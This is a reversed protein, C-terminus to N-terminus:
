LNNILEEVTIRLPKLIGNRLTGKKIEKHNPIIAIRGDVHKMVIHSGTQRIKTFGMKTFAKILKQASMVPLKPM